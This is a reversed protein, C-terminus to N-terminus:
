HHITKIHPELVGFAAKTVKVDQICHEVVYNMADKELNKASVWKSFDMDTKQDAFHFTKAVADLRSSHLALFPKRAYYMLDIHMKHNLPRLGHMALRTQIFAVDYMKSNWGIWCFSEEMYDRVAAALKSDDYPKKGRYKKDDLRFTVVEDSHLPAFCVCLLNGFNGKLDTAEIDFCDFRPQM